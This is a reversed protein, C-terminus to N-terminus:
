PEAFSAPQAHPFDVLLQASLAIGVLLQAAAVAREIGLHTIQLLSELRDLLARAVLEAHDPLVFYEELDQFRRAGFARALRGHGTISRAIPFEGERSRGAHM